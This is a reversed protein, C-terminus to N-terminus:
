RGLSLASAAAEATVVVWDGAEAVATGGEVAKAARPPSKRGKCPLAREARGAEPDALVVSAESAVAAVQMEAAGEWDAAAEAPAEEEAHVATLAAAEGERMAEATREAADVWAEVKARGAAREAGVGLRVARAAAM